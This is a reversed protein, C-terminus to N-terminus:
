HPRKGRPESGEESKVNNVSTMDGLADSKRFLVVHSLLFLSFAKTSGM